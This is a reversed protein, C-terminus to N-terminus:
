LTHGTLVAVPSGGALFASHPPASLPAGWETGYVQAADGAFAADVVPQAEWVPHTVQYEATVGRGRDTYGWYHETIFAVAPDATACIAAGAPIGRITHWRGAVKVGYAVAGGPAQMPLTHRMPVAAYPENYLVRAVTAIAFRPVFERIFCVGRRIEGDPLRRLVYFRLNLEDFNRHFPIALGLVRTNLFRFGVLSAFAQGDYLDLEIGQPLHPTLLTPDVVYNLM